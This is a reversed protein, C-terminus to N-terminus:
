LGGINRTFFVLGWSGNERSCAFMSEVCVIALFESSSSFPKGGRCSITSMSTSM